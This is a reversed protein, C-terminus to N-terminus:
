VHARGIQQLIDITLIKAKPRTELVGLLATGAGTGVDVVVPTETLTAVVKQLFALEDSLLLGFTTSLRQANM